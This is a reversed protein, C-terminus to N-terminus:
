EKIDQDNTRVGKNSKTIEKREIPTDKSCNEM